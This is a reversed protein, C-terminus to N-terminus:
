TYAVDDNFGEANAVRRRVRRATCMQAVLSFDGMSFCITRVTAMLAVRRASTV